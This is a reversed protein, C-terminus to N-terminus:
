WLTVKCQWFIGLVLLVVTLGLYHRLEGVLVDSFIGDLGYNMAGIISIQRSGEYLNQLSDNGGEKGQILYVDVMSNLLAMLIFIM